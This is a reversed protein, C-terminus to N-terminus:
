LILVEIKAQVEEILDQEVKEVFLVKRARWDLSKIQNTLVVGKTKMGDILAVEFSLGKRQTTIPCALVMSAMQNYKLPSLVLAPRYGQQERGQQELEANLTKAIEEFSMGSNKLSFARKILSATIEVLGFELKVIDGRDPIFSINVM